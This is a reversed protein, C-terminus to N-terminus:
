LRFHLSKPRTMQEIGLRSLSVGRGSNKVGTWALYPDLYDCRNLFVTGTDLEEAIRGAADVDATWLSATLGYPSDNMLSIAQADGQVPMVGVCPGFTEERVLAMSHDVRSLIQPALYASGERAAEFQTPDVHAHAGSAVADAIVSRINEASSRRVVPGLTTDPNRPDGLVYTSAEAVALSLFEEFVAEEVYVREIACCSQGSNFLVGEVVNAAAFSLDADRRVYAPDNGGLELGAGIFRKRGTRSSLAQSVAVGGAVSGTFMVHDVCDDALVHATTEHSMHLVQLVGDPLGAERFCEVFHEGSLPTQDSPKLVVSNGALIAPVIANVATLYPYNWPSMVFVVGHPARKIRRSFGATPTPVVDQLAEPALDAMVQAREITGAVEGPSFQIPRGMCTTISEAIEDARRGFEATFRQVIGCREEISSTRWVSANSRAADLTRAIAAPTSGPMRLVTSGDIPSIVDIAPNM